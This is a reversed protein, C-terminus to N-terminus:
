GLSRALMPGITNAVPLPLKKWAKIFLQYKPNMPNIEPIAVSKVLFNEYYLPEPSFGWNKKFSYSGTGEKSRGYDFIRIGREAARRMLEWYMFDNGKLERALSISGGYYP